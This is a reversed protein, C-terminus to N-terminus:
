RKVPIFGINGWNAIGWSRPMRISTVFIVSNKSSRRVSYAMRGGRM